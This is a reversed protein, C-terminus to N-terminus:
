RSPPVRPLSPGGPAHRLRGGYETMGEPGRGSEGAERQPATETIAPRPDTGSVPRGSAESAACFCRYRAAELRDGNRHRTRLSAAPLCVPAHRRHAGGPCHPGEGAMAGAPRGAPLIRPVGPSSSSGASLGGGLQDDEMDSAGAARLEAARPQGRSERAQRRGSHRSGATRLPSDPRPANGPSAPGACPRAARSASGPPERQVLPLIRTPGRPLRPVAAPWLGFFFPILVSTQAQVRTSIGTSKAMQRFRRAGAAAAPWCAM